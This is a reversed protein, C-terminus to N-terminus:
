FYNLLTKGEKRAKLREIVGELIAIIRDEYSEHHYKYNWQTWNPRKHGIKFKTGQMRTNYSNEDLKVAKQDAIIYWHYETGKLAGTGSPAQHQRTKLSQFQFKWKDPAVKVENWVGNNYDWNHKGGVSMGMYKQGEHDKLTNYTDRKDSKAM